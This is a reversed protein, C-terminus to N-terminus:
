KELDGSLIETFRFTRQNVVCQILLLEEKQEYIVRGVNYNVSGQEAYTLRQYDALFLEKMIRAEYMHLTKIYFDTTTRTNELVTLLMLSLLHILMMASFFIGGKHLFRGNVM